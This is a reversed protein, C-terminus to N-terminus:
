LKVFHGRLAWSKRRAVPVESQDSMVLLSQVRRFSRAHGLNVLHQDHVRLFGFAELNSEIEGISKSIGTYACTGKDIYHVKVAAKGESSIRVIDNAELLLWGDNKLSAVMLRPMPKLKAATQNLHLKHARQVATIFLHEDPPKTLFHVAQYHFAELAYAPYSSVVVLQFDRHQLKELLRFGNQKQDLQIDLFLLDPRVTDIADMASAYTHFSGGLEFTPFHRRLLAEIHECFQPHDDVIVAKM